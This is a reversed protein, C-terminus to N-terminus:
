STRGKLDDMSYCVASRVADYREPACTLVIVQRREGAAAFTRAMADLRAADTNGLADDIIVPISEKGLAAIDAIAFRQLVGIQEQAGGSLEGLPVAVGRMHRATISLKKDLDFDVDHDFVVSAYRQLADRFPRAYRERSSELHSRLTDRLVRAAEARRALSEYHEAARDREDCLHARVDEAGRAAAFTAALAGDERAMDRLRKEISEVKAAAADYSDRASVVSVAAGKVANYEEQRRALLARTGKVLVEDSASEAEGRQANLEELRQKAAEYREEVKALERNLHSLRSRATMCERQAVECADHASHLDLTEDGDAAERQPPVGNELAETWGAAALEASLADRERRQEPLSGDEDVLIDRRRVRLESRRRRDIEAVRHREGVEEVTIAGWRELEAASAQRLSEYERQVAREDEGVQSRYVADVDGVAISTGDTLLVPVTSGPAIEQDVGNVRVCATESGRVSIELRASSQEAVRRAVRLDSDLQKLEEWQEATPAPPRADRGDLEALEKDIEEVLAVRSRLRRCRVLKRELEARRKEVNEAAQARQYDKSREEVLKDVQQVAATQSLVNEKLVAVHEAIDAVMARQKEYVQQLKQANELAASAAEAENMAEKLRGKLTECRQQHAEAEALETQQLALEQRAKKLAKEDWKKKACLSVYRRRAEELASVDKEAKEVCLEAQELEQAANKWEGRPRGKETFFQGYEKEAAAMLAAEERGAATGGHTSQDLAQTVSEIGAAALSVSLDGQEVFLADMLATDVTENLLRHLREDAEDGRWRQTKGDEFIELRDNKKRDYLRDITFRCDGSSAILRVHAPRDTTLSALRRTEKRNASGKWRLAARLADLISSKGAENEGYVVTVGNAPLAPIELREVGRFDEILLSHIILSIM